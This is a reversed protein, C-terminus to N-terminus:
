AQAPRKFYFYIWAVAFAAMIVTVVWAFAPAHVFLVGYLGALAGLGAFAIEMQVVIRVEEWRAARYGFWSSVALALLAAAMLRTMTPDFPSWNVLTVWIGPKPYLLIGFILSVICHVLFTIKLGRSM